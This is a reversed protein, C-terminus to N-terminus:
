LHFVGMLWNFLATLIALGIVAGGASELVMRGREMVPFNSAARGGLMGFLGWIAALLACFILLGASVDIFVVVYPDAFFTMDPVITPVTTLPLLGFSGLKLGVYFVVTLFM